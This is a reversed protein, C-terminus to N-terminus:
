FFLAPQLNPPDPTCILSGNATGSSNTYFRERKLQPPLLEKPQGEKFGGSRYWVLLQWFQYSALKTTSQNM